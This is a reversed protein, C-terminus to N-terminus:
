VFIASGISYFFAVRLSYSWAHELVRVGVVVHIVICCLSHVEFIEVFADSLSICIPVCSNRKNKRLSGHNQALQRSMSTRQNHQSPPAHRRPGTDFARAMCVSAIALQTKKLEMLPRGCRCRPTYIACARFVFAYRTCNSGHIAYVDHPRCCINKDFM